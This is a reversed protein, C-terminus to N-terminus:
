VSIAKEHRTYSMLQNKFIRRCDDLEAAAYLTHM